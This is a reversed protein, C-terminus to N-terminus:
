HEPSFRGDEATRVWDSAVGHSQHGSTDTAVVTFQYETFPLLSSSQHQTVGDEVSETYMTGTRNRLFILILLSM